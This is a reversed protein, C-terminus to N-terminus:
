FPTHALWRALVSADGLVQVRADDAPIRRLLVLLLDDAAGRVAVAGKAHGHEWAIGSDTARIMWEGGSGLGDDTAHLHMTAEVPLVPEGGPREAVLSLWESVADAAVEPAPSFVAGTALAADARHVVSEHVRRRVWWGAPRPGLFTWVEHDPALGVVDLLLRAGAELWGAAADPDAPPKGDPVTRPDVFSQARQAVITAAWRDGRGVHTTLERLTWGPCTPVPTAPDGGRVIEGLARTQTLLAAPLDLAM